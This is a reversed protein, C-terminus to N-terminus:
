VINDVQAALQASSLQISLQASNFQSSLQASSLSAEKVNDHSSNNDIAYLDEQQPDEVASRAGNGDKGDSVSVVGEEV